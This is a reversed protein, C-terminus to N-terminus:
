RDVYQHCKISLPGEFAQYCIPGILKMYYSFDTFSGEEIVKCDSALSFIIKEDPMFTVSLTDNLDNDSSYLSFGILEKNDLKNEIISLLQHHSVKTSSWGYDVEGIPIILAGTELVLKRGNECFLEIMKQWHSIDTLNDSSISIFGADLSM